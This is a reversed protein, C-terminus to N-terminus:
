PAIRTWPKRRRKAKRRSRNLRTRWPGAKRWLRRERQVARKQEQRIVALAEEPTNWQHYWEHQGIFGEHLGYSFGSEYHGRRCRFWREVVMHGAPTDEDYETIYLEGGCIPCMHPYGGYRWWRRMRKPEM